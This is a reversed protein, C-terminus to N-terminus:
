HHKLYYEVIKRFLPAASAGGTKGEEVLVVMAIEPQNLPWFGAFWAHTIERGRGDKRGTQATGTKGGSGGAAEAARGTGNQVVARMMIRLTRATGESMIRALMYPPYSKRAEGGHTLIKKVIRPKYLNGGNAIAAVFSCIQLPSTKVSKQGISINGIDGKSMLDPNELYGRSEESLGCGTPSGFGFKRSYGVIKRAGLRMGLEIFVPNCSVAMAKVLYIKKHGGEEYAACRFRHNQVEYYGPDYFMEVPSTEKEELAAAAIILKFVSGPYFDRLARNILPAGGAGLYAGPNNGDYSPRSCMALVDGTQPEMIVVAGKKVHGTMVHEAAKQWNADLALKINCPTKGPVEYIMRRYGLGRILRHAGDELAVLQQFRIGILFYDFRHELGSIGQCELPSVYGILHAAMGPDYRVPQNAILVGPLFRTKVQDILERGADIKLMVPSNAKAIERMEGETKKLLAALERPYDLRKPFQRPFLFIRPIQKQNTIPAGHRDLFDGRSVTLPISEVRQELAARRLEDGDIIQLCFTRGWLFWLLLHVTFFVFYLRKQRDPYYANDFDIM